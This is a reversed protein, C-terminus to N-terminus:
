IKVFDPDSSSESYVDKKMIYLTERFNFVEEKSYWKVDLCINGETHEILLLARKSFTYALASIVALLITLPTYSRLFRYVILSVIVFILCVILMTLPYRTGYTTSKINEVPIKNRRNHIRPLTGHIREM